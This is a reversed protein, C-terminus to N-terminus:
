LACYKIYDGKCCLGQFGPSGDSLTVPFSLEVSRMHIEYECEITVKASAQVAESICRSM